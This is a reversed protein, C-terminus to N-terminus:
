HKIYSLYHFSDNGLEISLAGTIAPNDNEDDPGWIGIEIELNFGNQEARLVKVLGSGGFGHGLLYMNDKGDNQFAKATKLYDSSVDFYQQVAKEVVESPAFPEVYESGDSIKTDPPNTERDLLNNYACFSVLDDSSINEAKDWSKLLIKGTPCLPEVYKLYLTDTDSVDVSPASQPKDNTLDFQCGSLLLLTSVFFYTFM